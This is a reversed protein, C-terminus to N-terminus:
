WVLESVDVNSAGMHSIFANRIARRLDQEHQPNLEEAQLVWVAFQEASVAGTEPFYDTVHTRSGDRSGGCCGLGVCVENLLRVFDINRDKSRTM